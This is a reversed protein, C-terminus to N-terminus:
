YVYFVSLSIFSLRGSNYSESFLINNNSLIGYVNVFVSDLHTTMSFRSGSHAMLDLITKPFYKYDAFNIGTTQEQCSLYLLIGKKNALDFSLSENKSINKIYQLNGLDYNININDLKVNTAILNNNLEEVENDLEGIKEQVNKSSGDPESYLINASDNSTGSLVDGNQILQAM